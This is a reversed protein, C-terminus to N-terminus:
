AAVEVIDRVFLVLSKTILNGDHEWMQLIDPHRYAIYRCYEEVSMGDTDINM